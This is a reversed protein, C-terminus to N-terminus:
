ELQADVDCRSVTGDVVDFDVLDGSKQFGLEEKVRRLGPSELPEFADEHRARRREGTESLPELGRERALLPFRDTAEEGADRGRTSDDVAFLDGREFRRIARKIETDILEVSQEALEATSGLFRDVDLGTPRGAVGTFRDGRPRVGA